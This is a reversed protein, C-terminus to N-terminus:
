SALREAEARLWGKASTFDEFVKGTLSSAWPADESNGEYNVAVGQESIYFKFHLGQLSPHIEARGDQEIDPKAPDFDPGKEARLKEARDSMFQEFSINLPGELPERKETTPQEFGM